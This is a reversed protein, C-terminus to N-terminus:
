RFTAKFDREVVAGKIQMTGKTRKAFRDVAEEIDALKFDAKLQNLDIEALNVIRGVWKTTTSQTVGLDSRTRTLDATNVHSAEAQAIQAATAAERADGEAVLAVDLDDETKAGEALSAAAQALRDAEAKAAAAEEARRKEEAEVLSADYAAVLEEALTKVEDVKKVIGALFFNDIVRTTRLLDAKEDTHIDKAKKALERCKKVYVAIKAKWTPDVIALRKRGYVTIEQTPIRAFAEIVEQREDCQPKYDKTLRELVPDTDPAGASNHGIFASTDNM